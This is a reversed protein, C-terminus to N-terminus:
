VQTFLDDVACGICLSGRSNNLCTKGSDHGDSLFYNRIMPNYLLTQLIANMFCTNGM